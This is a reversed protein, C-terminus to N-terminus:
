RKSIRVAVVIILIILIVNVAGIIWLYSNEGLSGISFGPKSTSIKEAIDVKIEKTEQKDGSIADVKFSQLGKVDDNVNFTYIITQSDQPDLEIIRESIDSLSAWEQYNNAGMIFTARESKLNVITVEVVLDEGATPEDTELSATITAIKGSSGTGGTGAGGFGSCGLIKIPIRVEDDLSERYNGNKYDYEASLLLDYQKTQANNPVMFEFSIKESDGQDLDSRIEYYKDLSLDKNFLTIKVQDQDKDGINFAETTISVADGCTAETPSVVIDEFAIFKGEDNEEQIRIDEFITDSLDSSSDACQESEGTDDSYAKIALKYSGSEIDAPVRFKFTATEEDDEDLDGLDFEEEDDNEFDLDNVQNGDASDFFGLEVIIDNLDLNGSNEVDVEIEITDLLDWENEDGEGTNDISVDTIRLGGVSGAGCFGERIANFSITSIINQTTDEAKITIINNGFRFETGAPITVTLEETSGPQLNLITTRSLTTQFASTESLTLDLAKNGDNKVTIIGSQTKSIERTKTLVILPADNIAISKSLQGIESSNSITKLILAITGSSHKPINIVASLSKTEGANISTITPLQKFTGQSLTSLTWDLGTENNLGTTKLTFTLTTDTNHDATSPISVATLELAASAFGSVLLLSLLIIISTFLIKQIKMKM